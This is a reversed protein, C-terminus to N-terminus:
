RTVHHVAHGPTYAVQLKRGALELAEGGSLTRINDEPVALFDGWLTDM